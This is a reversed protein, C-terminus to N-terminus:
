FSRRQRTVRRRRKRRSREAEEVLPLAITQGVLAWADADERGPGVWNPRDFAIECNNSLLQELEDGALQHDLCPRLRERYRAISHSSLEVEFQHSDGSPSPTATSNM